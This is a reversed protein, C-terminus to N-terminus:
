HNNQKHLSYCTRDSAIITGNIAYSVTFSQYHEQWHCTAIPLDLRSPYHIYKCCNIIVYIRALASFVNLFDYFKHDM